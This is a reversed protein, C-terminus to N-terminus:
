AAETPRFPWAAHSIVKLESTAFNELHTMVEDDYALDVQYNTGPLASIDKVRGQMGQHRGEGTVEVLDGIYIGRDAAQADPSTARGEEGVASAGDTDSGLPGCDAGGEEGDSQMAAAIGQMAEEASTKPRAPAAPTKPKRGKPSAGGRVGNAQAAPNLPADAEQAKAADAARKKAAKLEATMKEQVAAKIENVDVLADEAVLMLGVNQPANPQHEAMWPQYEVDKWAVLMMLVDIPQTTERVLDSLADKPAVKGLDLVKALGKARDNNMMGVYHLAIHRAITRPIAEGSPADHMAKWAEAVVRVRWEEEFATKQKLKEAEADAKASKEADAQVKAAQEQYGKAALLASVTDRPLVAVLEGENHPNAVLTPKIGDKEMQKGILARLTKSKDPSDALDDLRLYGEVHTVWSNPMLEKAERGTIITQGNAQAWALRLANNADEKARYCPPDTCIDAGKVDAFLDPNAGTRKPCSFCAGAAPILDADTTEFRAQALKLMYHQQIFRAADRHSMSDAEEGHGEDAIDDLARAQLTTDPIRAILLARSADLRGTRLAERGEQGLDLLKLRAYVYSRSKGIKAAVEDVTLTGKGFNGQMMLHDYGQAEELPSLDERQLNEILQIDLVESDTLERVMAPISELDIKSCARYRREGSVLEYIPRPRLRATDELRSAPMPRVLVPQHVGSARISEALEALKAMDFTKRPNTLSATIHTLPIHAFSEPTTM